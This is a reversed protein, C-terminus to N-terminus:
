FQVEGSADTPIPADEVQKVALETEIKKRTEEQEREIMAKEKAAQQKDQEAQQDARKKVPLLVELAGAIDGVINQVNFDANEGDLVGHIRTKVVALLSEPTTGSAFLQAATRCISQFQTNSMRARQETLEMVVVKLQAVFTRAKEKDAATPHPSRVSASPTPATKSEKSLNLVSEPSSVEGKGSSVEGKSPVSKPTEKGSFPSSVEPNPKWKELVLTYNVPHRIGGKKGRHPEVDCILNKNELSRLARQIGRDSMGTERMIKPISPRAETGDNHAHRALSSLAQKEGRPLNLDFVKDVLKFSM